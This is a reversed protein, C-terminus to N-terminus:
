TTGKGTYALGIDPAQVIIVFLFLFFLVMSTVNLQMWRDSYPLVQHLM